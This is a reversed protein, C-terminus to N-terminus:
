SLARRLWWMLDEFRRHERLDEVVLVRVQWGLDALRQLRRQEDGYIQRNEYHVRGNYEVAARHDPWATDLHYRQGDPAIVPHNMIPEPLGANVLALRLLTEMPSWTAPASREVARRLQRAGCTGPALASVSAFIQERSLPRVPGALAPGTALLHDVAAVARWGPLWPLCQLLTEVPHTVRSGWPGTVPPLGLGRHLLFWKNGQHRRRGTFSLEPRRELPPRRASEGLLAHTWPMASGGIPLGWLEAASLHSILLDDHSHEADHGRRQFADHQILAAREWAGLQPEDLAQPRRAWLTHTIRVFRPEGALSRASRGWREATRTDPLPFRARADSM